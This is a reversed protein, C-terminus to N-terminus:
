GGRTATYLEGRAANLVVGAIPVGNEVAAISVAYEMVGHLFNTTGDLPDVVFWLGDGVVEGAWAEEGLMRSDPFAGLLRERIGEEAGRDVESVYDAPGKAEWTLGGRRTAADAIGAAAGRAAGVMVDMLGSYM